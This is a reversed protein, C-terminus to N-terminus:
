FDAPRMLEDLATKVLNLAEPHRMLLIHAGAQLLVKAATAEWLIGRETADGWEPYEEKPAFAEKQLWSEHGVTCLVPMALMRDGALAGQRIREMISFAYEIGYGLGGISPDIVIRDPPLDAETILINMQKCINIDLPSRAILSHGYAACAAAMARYNDPEANGLLLREGSAAEAIAPILENDKDAVDCGVVILPVEVAQLVERVTSVCREVPHNAGDPDAGALKLYILDAHYQEVCKRAWAAPSTWVEQFCAALAAPWEPVVDQIELAAVPRNPTLGEFHHFPLASDGGAKLCRARTGGESRGAGM